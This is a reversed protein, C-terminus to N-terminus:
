SAATARPTCGSGHLANHVADVLDEISFPKHLVAVGLRTIDAQHADIQDAAGTCLIAPVFRETAHRVTKVAALGVPDFNVLMDSLLVDVHPPMERVLEDLTTAAVVAHGEEELVECLLEQLALDDELVLITASM